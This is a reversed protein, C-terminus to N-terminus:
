ITRDAHLLGIVWGFRKPEEQTQAKDESRQQMWIANEPIVLRFGLAYPV